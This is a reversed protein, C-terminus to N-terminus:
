QLIFLGFIKFIKMYKKICGGGSDICMWSAEGLFVKEIEEWM